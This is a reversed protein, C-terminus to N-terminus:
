IIDEVSTPSGDRPSDDFPHPSGLNYIRPNANDAVDFAIQIVDGLDAHTPTSECDMHITAIIEWTPM